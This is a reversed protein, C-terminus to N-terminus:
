QYTRVVIQRRRHDTLSCVCPLMADIQKIYCLFLFINIVDDVHKDELQDTSLVLLFALIIWSIM